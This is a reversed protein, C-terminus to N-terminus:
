LVVRWHPGCATVQPGAEGDVKVLDLDAPKVAGTAIDKGKVANRAIDNSKVTNKGPLAIASGALAAVLPLALWGSAVARGADALFARRTSDASTM